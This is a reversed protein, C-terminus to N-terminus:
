LAMTNVDKGSACSKKKSVGSIELIWRNIRKIERQKEKEIKKSKEGKGEKQEKEKKRRGMVLKPLLIWFFYIQHLICKKVKFFM